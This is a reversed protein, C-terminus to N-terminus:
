VNFVKRIIEEHVAEVTQEGNIDIVKYNPSDELWKITPKVETDFWALRRNVEEESIDDHRGRGRLRERSWENSVNLHVVVPHERKFFSLATDLVMAERLRRPAGDIFLHENGNIKSIMEESWMLVALFEPQLEGKEMTERSLRSAYSDLAIFSRFRGGTEIHVSSHGPDKEELYKKLLEIQTGKGSGSRGIFIFTKPSDM